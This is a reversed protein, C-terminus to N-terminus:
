ARGRRPRTPRRLRRPLSFEAVPRGSPRLGSATWMDVGRPARLPGAAMAAVSLGLLRPLGTDRASTVATVGTELASWARAHRAPEWYSVPSPWGRGRLPWLLPWPDSAHTAADLALHGAWGTALARARPSRRGALAIGLPTLASHAALHLPRWRRDHWIADLLDARATGRAALALGIATGLLDPGVSGLVAWGARPRGRTLKWTWYAHAATQV